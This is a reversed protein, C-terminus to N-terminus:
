TPRRSPSRGAASRVRASPGVQVVDALDADGVVDKVLRAGKGLLLPGPDLFVGNDAGVDDPPRRRQALGQLHDALVVLAVVPAAIGVGQGPLLDRQGGPDDGDGIHPVREGRITGVPRGPWGVTGQSVQLGAPAAVEVGAAQVGEQGQHGLAAVAGAVSVAIRGHGVRGGLHSGVRTSDGSLGDDRQPPHTTM